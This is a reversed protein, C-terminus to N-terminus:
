VALRSLTSVVTRYTTFGYFEMGLTSHTLASPLNGSASGILALANTFAHGIAIAVFIGFITGLSPDFLELTLETHDSIMKGIFCLVSTAVAFLMVFVFAKNTAADSIFTLSGSTNAYAIETVKLALLVAIFDFIARNFGRKMEVTVILICLSALILDVWNAGV